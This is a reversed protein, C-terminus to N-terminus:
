MGKQCVCRLLTRQQAAATSEPAPEPMAPETLDAAQAKRRTVSFSVGVTIARDLEHGNRAAMTRKFSGFVDMSDSISFAAGGGLNLHNFRGIQDHHPLQKATLAPQRGPYTIDIGGHTLQASSM